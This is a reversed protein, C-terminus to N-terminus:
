EPVVTINLQATIESHIKISVTYSGLRKIPEDLLIKKRDIEIGESKLAEAIDMSTISGFLKEEEGAKAKLSLSMATIREALDKSANKIKKAKEQIVKKQHELAKINETIAELALKKPVLFNKAYGDAVNVIDGMKGLNKVDEKLILKM